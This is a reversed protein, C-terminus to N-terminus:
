GESITFFSSIKATAATMCHQLPQLTQCGKNVAAEFLRDTLFSLQLSLSVLDERIM